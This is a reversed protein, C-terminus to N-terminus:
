KPRRLVIRTNRATRPGGGAPRFTLRVRLALKHKRKLARASKRSLKLGFAVPGAKSVTKRATKFPALRKAAVAAVRRSGGAPAIQMTGAGPAYATVATGGASADLAASPTITLTLDCSLRRDADSGYTVPQIPNEPGFFKASCTHQLPRGDGVVTTTTSHECSGGNRTTDRVQGGVFAGAVYRSDTVCDWEVNPDAESLRVTLVNKCTSGAPCATTRKVCRSMAPCPGSTITCAPGESQARGRAIAAAGDDTCQEVRVETQAVAVTFDRRARTPDEAGEPSVAQVEFFHAQAALEKALRYPSTCTGLDINDIRCRFTSGPVTSTFSFTPRREFVTGEPGATITTDPAGVIEFAQVTVATQENGAADYALVYVTHQGPTSTILPCGAGSFAASTQPAAPPDLACLIGAVGGSPAPDSTSRGLLVTGRYREGPGVKAGDQSSLQIQSTPAVTDVFFTRTAPSSDRAGGPRVARVRFTHAGDALAATTHPTTCVAFAANDVACEFTAGAAPDAAFGFTPTTDNTPGGPGATITTDIRDDDTITVTLTSPSGLGTGASPQSLTLSMVEDGEDVTDNVYTVNASQQTQGPAFTVTGASVAAFDSPAAATGNATAYAVTTQGTTNGTREVIFSVTGSAEPVATADTFFRVTATTSDEVYTVSTSSCASTGDANTATAHVTTTSNDAVTVTLGPSAFAAATGTALPTGSCAANDYLSVTTGAPATGSIKPTNDNAPSAPSVATVSPAAPPVVRAFVDATDNTDDAVLDSADSEFAVVAGNGSTSPESSAANGVTGDTRVSVAETANGQRDRVFVDARSNGDPTAVLNTADSSFAVHSGDASISPAFSDGNGQAGGTTVSLRETVNNLRDRVFIDSAAGNTDGGVLNTARSEFAVYRGDASISPHLSVNDADGGALAGTVRETTGAQRDRVFIDTELSTGDGAVLNTANSAFAVYRGDASIAASSSFANAQAGAGSVSVRTTADTQRDHVFVDRTANTDDAVLNTALSDFAVYRGDASIAPQEANSNAAPGGGTGVSVRETIGTQRDYVFADRINGADGAVLNTAVSLFAVYRGDASLSPAFSPGDSEAGATGVSVRGTTGTLRDRVFVDEVGNTDGAVLNIAVSSFAVYRGDASVDAGGSAGDSQLEDGNVSVRTLAPPPFAALSGGLPQWAADAPAAACTLVAFLV